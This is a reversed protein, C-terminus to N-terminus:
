WTEFNIINKSSLGHSKLPKCENNQPQMRGADIRKLYRKALNLPGLVSRPVGGFVEVKAPEEDVEGSEVAGTCM